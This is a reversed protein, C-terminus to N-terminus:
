DEIYHNISIIEIYFLALFISILFSKITTCFRMSDRELIDNRM